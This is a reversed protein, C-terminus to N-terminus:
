VSVLGHVSERAKEMDVRIISGGTIRRQMMPKM